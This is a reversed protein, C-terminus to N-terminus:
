CSLHPALYLMHPSSNFLNGDQHIPGGAKCTKSSNSVVVLVLLGAHLQFNSFFISDDRNERRIYFERLPSNMYARGHTKYANKHNVYINNWNEISQFYKYISRTPNPTIFRVFNAKYISERIYPLHFNKIETTPLLQDRNGFFKFVFNVKFYKLSKFHSYLDVRFNM